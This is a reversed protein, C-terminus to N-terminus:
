KKLDFEHTKRNGRCGFDSLNNNNYICPFPFSGACHIIIRNDKEIFKKLEFRPKIFWLRANDYQHQIM